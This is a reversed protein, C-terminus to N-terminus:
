DSVYEGDKFTMRHAETGDETYGVLVGNGDKVNTVPCKDGNPKWCYSSMRKGDKFTHEYLKQGNEHWLTDLGHQLSRNSDWWVELPVDSLSVKGKSYGIDWKPIGNQKWQKLRTVSGDTFEALVKVQGNDYNKKAWGSYPKDTSPLNTVGNRNQLKSWEVILADPDMMLLSIIHEATEKKMDTLAPGPPFANQSTDHNVSM